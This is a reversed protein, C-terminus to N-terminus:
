LVKFPNPHEQMCAAKINVALEVLEGIRTSLQQMAMKRDTEESQTRLVITGLEVIADCASNIEIRLDHIRQIPHRNRPRLTEEVTPRGPRNGTPM